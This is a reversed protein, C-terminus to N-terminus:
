RKFTPHLEVGFTIPADGVNLSLETYMQKVEGVYQTARNKCIEGAHYDRTQKSNVPRIFTPNM